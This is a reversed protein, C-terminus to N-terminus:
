TYENYWLKKDIVAAAIVGLTYALMDSWLFGYGLVLGGLTTARIGDIWPEHYLQSLEIGYCFVLSIMIIRAVSSRYFVLTIAFYVMMSWLLDGLYMNVIVPLHEDIKRSLLGMVMFSIMILLNIVRNRNKKQNMISGKKELKYKLGNIM